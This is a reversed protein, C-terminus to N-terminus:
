IHILSLANTTMRTIRLTSFFKCCDSALEGYSEIIYNFGVSPVQMLGFAIMGYGFALGVWGQPSANQAVFGFTISGATVIILSPIMLPLRKEPEGFGHSEQKAARKALWDTTLFAYVGGVFTGVLGAVNILGVNAGWLYPPAALLQPAITSVTVILGVLGAYHLMVMVTGPLRLTLYPRFFRGIFGGRPKMFGLSRAFTYPPYVQSDVREVTETMGKESETTVVGMANERDFLTEPLFFVALVFNIGALIASIWMTWRWGLDTAIYGGIVGGLLSGASLFVTYVALARGRQHVFFVHGVVDPALTDAAAGGVGQLVRAALLSNFSKAEACWISM